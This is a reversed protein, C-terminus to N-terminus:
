NKLAEEKKCMRARAGDNCRANVVYAVSLMHRRVIDTAHSNKSREACIAKSRMAFVEDIDAISYNL